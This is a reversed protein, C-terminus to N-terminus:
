HSIQQTSAWNKSNNDARISEEVTYSGIFFLWSFPRFKTWSFGTYCSFLVYPYMQQQYQGNTTSSLFEGIVLHNPPRLLLYSLTILWQYISVDRASSIVPGYVHKM